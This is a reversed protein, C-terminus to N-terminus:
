VSYVAVLAKERGEARLLSAYGRGGQILIILSIHLRGYSFPQMYKISYTFFFLMYMVRGLKGCAGYASPQFRRIFLVFFVGLKGRCALHSHTSTISFNHSRFPKGIM